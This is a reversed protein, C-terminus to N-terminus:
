AWEHEIRLVGLKEVVVVMVSVLWGECVARWVGGLFVREGLQGVSSPHIAM